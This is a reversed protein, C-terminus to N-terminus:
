RRRCRDRLRAGCRERLGVDVVDEGLGFVDEAAIGRELDVAEEGAFRAAASRMEELDLQAVAVLTMAFTERVLQEDRWDGM